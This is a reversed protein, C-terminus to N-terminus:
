ANGEELLSKLQKILTVPVPGSNVWLKLLDHSAKTKEKVVDWSIGKEEIQEMIQALEETNM